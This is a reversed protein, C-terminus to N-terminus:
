YTRLEIPGPHCRACARPLPRLIPSQCAALRTSPCFLSASTCARCMGLYSMDELVMQNMMSMHGTSTKVRALDNSLHIEVFFSSKNATLFDTVTASEIATSKQGISQCLTASALVETSTLVSRGSSSLHNFVEATLM